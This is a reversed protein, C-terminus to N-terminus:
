IGCNRPIRDLGPFGEDRTYAYQAGIVSRGGRDGYRCRQFDGHAFSRNGHQPFRGGPRRPDDPRHSQQHRRRMDTSSCSCSKGAAHARLAHLAAAGTTPACGFAYFTRAAVPRAVIIRPESVRRHKRRIPLRITDAVFSITEGPRLHRRALEKTSQDCVIFAAIVSLVLTIRRTM